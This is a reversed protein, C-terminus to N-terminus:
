IRRRLYTVSLLSIAAALLGAFFYILVLDRHLRIWHNNMVDAFAAKASLLPGMDWYLRSMLRSQLLTFALSGVLLINACLFVLINPIDRHHLRTEKPIILAAWLAALLATSLNFFNGSEAQIMELAKKRYEDYKVESITETTTELRWATYGLVCLTGLITLIALVWASKRMLKEKGETALTGISRRAV